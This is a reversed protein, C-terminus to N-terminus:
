CYYPKKEAVKTWTTPITSYNDFGNDITPTYDGNLVPSLKVSWNSTDGSTAPGSAIDYQSDLGLIELKNNGEENNSYGIAYVVFGDKDNCTTDLTTKGIDHEYTGGIMNISHATNVTPTMTCSIPVSLTFVDTGANDASAPVSLYSTLSMVFGLILLVISYLYAKILKQGM